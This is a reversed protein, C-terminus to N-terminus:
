SAPLRCSIRSGGSNLGDDDPGEVRFTGSQRAGPLSALDAIGSATAAIGTSQIGEAWGRTSRSGCRKGGHGMGGDDVEGTLVEGGFGLLGGNGDDDIEPGLMATGHLISDGTRSSTAASTPSRALTVLDVDHRVAVERHLEANAGHGCRIKMFSPSILSVFVPMMIFSAMMWFIVARAHGDRASNVTFPVLGDGAGPPRKGAQIRRREARPAPYRTATGTNSRGQFM